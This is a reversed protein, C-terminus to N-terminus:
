SFGIAQIPLTVLVTYM